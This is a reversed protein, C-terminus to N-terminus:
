SGRFVSRWGAFSSVLPGEPRLKCTLTVLIAFAYYRRHRAIDVAHEATHLDTEIPWAASGHFQRQWTLPCTPAINARVLHPARPGCHQYCTEPSEVMYTVARSPSDNSSRYRRKLRPISAEPMRRSYRGFCRKLDAWSSRRSLILAAARLCRRARALDPPRTEHPLVAATPVAGQPHPTVPSQQRQGREM